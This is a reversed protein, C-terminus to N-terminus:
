FDEEYFYDQDNERSSGVGERVRGKGKVKHSLHLWIEIKSMGQLVFLVLISFIIADLYFGFAVIAGIAAQVWITAATTLGSVLGDYNMIAGAGLFGIGTVVQGLVRSPDSQGQAFIEAAILGYKVYLMAGLAILISTRIGAPKKSIQRELGILGAGVLVVLIEFFFKPNIHSLQAHWDIM